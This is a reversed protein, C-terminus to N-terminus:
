TWNTVLLKPNKLEGSGFTLLIEHATQLDECRPPANIKL